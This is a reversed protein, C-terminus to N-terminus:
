GEPFPQAQDRNKKATVAEAVGNDIFAQAKLDDFDREDGLTVDGDDVMQRSETFRIKM